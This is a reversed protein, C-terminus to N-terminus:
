TNGRARIADSCELSAERTVWQQGALSECVKACAEREAKVAETIMDIAIGECKQQVQLLAAMQAVVALNKEREVEVAGRMGELAQEAILKYQDCWYRTEAVTNHRENRQADELAKHLM